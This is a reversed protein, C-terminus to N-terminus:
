HTLRWIWRSQDPAMRSVIRVGVGNLSL